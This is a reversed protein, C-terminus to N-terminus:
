RLLIDIIRNEEDWYFSGYCKLEDVSMAIYGDLRKGYIVKQDEDTDNLYVLASDYVKYLETGKKFGRYYNMSIPRFDKDVKTSIFLKESYNNWSFNFGYNKLDEAIIVIQSNYNDTYCFTPIEYGNIFTKVDTAVIRPNYASYVYVNTVTLMTFLIILFCITKKM